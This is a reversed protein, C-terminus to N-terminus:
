CSLQEPCFLSCLLTSVMCHHLGSNLGLFRIFLSPSTDCMPLRLVPSAAFPPDRPSTFGWTLYSTSLIKSIAGSTTRQGRHMHECLFIYRYVCLVPGKIKHKCHMPYQDRNANVSKPFTLDNSM